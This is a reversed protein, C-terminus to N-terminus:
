PWYWLYVLYPLLLSGAICLFWDLGTFSGFREEATQELEHIRRELDDIIALRAERVGAAHAATEPESETPEPM